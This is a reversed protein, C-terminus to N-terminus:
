RVVAVKLFSRSLPAGSAGARSFELVAIYVGSALGSTPFILAATGGLEREVLSGRVDYLLGEVLGGAVPNYDVTLPTGAMAPNPGFKLGSLGGQDVSVVNFSKAIVVRSAGEESFYVLDATYVGSAVPSGADSLGDWSTQAPAGGSAESLDFVLPNGAKGTAPDYAPAWTTVPLSFGVVGGASTPLTLRRVVEGSSDYIVLSNQPGEDIVQISRDLTTAQGFTNLYQVEIEYIGSAVLQGGSNLASWVLVDSASGSPMKLYGPFTIHVSGDPGQSGGNIVTSSLTLQGPVYEASGNFLTDVLEGASNYVGM